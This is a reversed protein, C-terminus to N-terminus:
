CMWTVVMVRKISQTEFAAWNAARLKNKHEELVRKFHTQM